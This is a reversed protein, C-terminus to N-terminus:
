KALIILYSLLKENVTFTSHGYYTTDQAIVILEKVGKGALAKAEELLSEM